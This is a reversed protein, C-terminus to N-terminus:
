QTQHCLLEIITHPARMYYLDSHPFYASLIELNWELLLSIRPVTWDFRILSFNMMLCQVASRCFNLFDSFLPRNPVPRCFPLHCFISITVCHPVESTKHKKWAIICYLVSPSVFRVILINCAPPVAVESFAFIPTSIISFQIQREYPRADYYIEISFGVLHM